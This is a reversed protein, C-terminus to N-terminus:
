RRSRTSGMAMLDAVMQKIEADNYVGHDRATDRNAGALVLVIEGRIRERQGLEEAISEVTGSVFEEHVKTLERAVAARRSPFHTAMERLSSMLRNPSEYFIATRTETLLETWLQRRQSAKRPIFGYFVFQDSPLGAAMLATIAACPGPIPVVTLGRDTAASILTYGPDSVLPTGADSILAISVGQELKALLQETREVENHEHYSVLPTSIEYHTLLGRARRTDEAAILDVQRLVELARLTSDLLNGIPTAVVYLHGPNVVGVPEGVKGEIWGSATGIRYRTWLGSTLVGAWNGLYYSTCCRRLSVCLAPWQWRRSLQIFRDSM